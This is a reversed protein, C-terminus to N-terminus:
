KSLYKDLAARVIASLDKEEPDKTTAVRVKLARYQAETIYFGRQKLQAAKPRAKKTKPTTAKEVQATEQPLLPLAVPEVEIPAAATQTVEPEQVGLISKFAADKDFKAKSM